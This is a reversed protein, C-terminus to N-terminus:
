PHARSECYHPRSKHHQPKSKDHQPKSKQHQPISKHCHPLMFLPAIAPLKEPDQVLALSTNSLFVM